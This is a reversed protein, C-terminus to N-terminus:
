LGQFFVAGSAEWGSLSSSAFKFHSCLQGFFRTQQVGQQLPVEIHGVEVVQRGGGKAPLVEAPQLIKQALMALSVLYYHAGAMRHLLEVFAAGEIRQFGVGIHAPHFVGPMFDHLREAIFLRKGDHALAFEM